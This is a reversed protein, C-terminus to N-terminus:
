ELNTTRKRKSSSSRDSLPSSSPDGSQVIADFRGYTPVVSAPTSPPQNHRPHVPTRECAQLAQELKSETPFTMDNQMAFVVPEKLLYRPQQAEGYLRV